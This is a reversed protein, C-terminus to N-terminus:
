DKQVGWKGAPLCNPTGPEYATGNWKYPISCEPICEWSPSAGEPPNTQTYVATVSFPLERGVRIAPAMSCEQYRTVGAASAPYNWAAAGSRFFSEAKPLPPTLLTIKGKAIRLVRAFERTEGRQNSSTFAVRGWATADKDRRLTMEWSESFDGIHSRTVGATQSGDTLIVPVLEEAECRAWPALDNVTQPLNQALRLSLVGKHYNASLTADADGGSLAEYSDLSAFVPELAVLLRADPTRALSTVLTMYAMFPADATIVERCFIGFDQMAEPHSALRVTRDYIRDRYVLRLRQLTEPAFLTAYQAWLTNFQKHHEAFAPNKELAQTYRENVAALPQTNAEGKGGPLSPKAALAPPALCLALVAVLFCRSFSAACCRWCRPM